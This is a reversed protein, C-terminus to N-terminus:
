NWILIRIMANKEITQHADASNRFVRAFTELSCYVIIESCTGLSHHRLHHNDHYFLLTLLCLVKGRVTSFKSDSDFNDPSTLIELGSKLYKNM